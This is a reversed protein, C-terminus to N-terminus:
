ETTEREVQIIYTGAFMVEDGQPYVVRGLSRLLLENLKTGFKERECGGVYIYEVQYKELLKQVEELNLSTYITEVDKQRESVSAPYGGTEDSRWLWEHTEWGMITPLGTLVSIRQYYTYSKGNAELIVPTGKITENMWKVAAADEASEREVFAAADIGQYRETKTVDGFWSECAIKIYPVTTLWLLFGIGGFIRHYKKDPFCLLKFFLYSMSIGFLIFAQYTLKFMTNARKFDGSYIDVVYVIEPILILGIGCLGITFIFLDSVSLNEILRFLGSRKEGFAITGAPTTKTATLESQKGKNKEIKKRGQYVGERKQHVIALIFCLLVCTIPLGWLIALQYFPTHNGALAIGASINDFTLMFPLCVIMSVGLVVGAHIATLLFTKKSFQYVVANSFLIVAGAVVFYIPFDWYNTTQFLGIFFGILLIVPHFAEQLLSCEKVSVQNRLDDMKKKRYLLWAFLLALVTLVFMTNIVHAHLDGLVFSYAPFEHITKDTTEPHYGIFRTANPFWYSDPVEGKKKQLWPQIWAFIPYHLNGAFAVATGAVFGVLTAVLSQGTGLEPEKTKRKKVTRQESNSEKKRDSHQKKELRDKMFVRVTNVAISYPLSFGFAALMTMMLNYGYNATTGTLKTLYSAIFQGVYYYNISEGAFWLDQPPMHESRLMITMFGYDMFKETGYAEPKFGRLYTWIFFVTLFLLESCLAHFLQKWSFSLVCTQGQSKAYRNMFFFLILNLALWFIASGICLTRTFSFITSSLYWVLWGGAAIGITKSFLWGGDHFRHFIPGAVPYFVLGLIVITINWRIFVTFDDKLLQNAVALIGLYGAVLLFWPVIKKILDLRKQKM